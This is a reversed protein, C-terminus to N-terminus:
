RLLATILCIGVLFGWWACPGVETLSAKKRRLPLRHSVKSRRTVVAHLSSGKM